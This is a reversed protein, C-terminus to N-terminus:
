IKILCKIIISENEFSDIARIEIDYIGPIILNPLRLKIKNKRKNVTKYYDSYYLFTYKKYRSVMNKLIIKYLNIYDFYKTEYFTVYLNISNKNKMKEINIMKNKFTPIAVKNRKKFTYKFNEVYIPFNIIWREDIVKETLFEIREFIINNDTLHAIFGMSFSNKASEFRVEQVNIISNNYYIVLCM